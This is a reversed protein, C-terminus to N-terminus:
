RISLDAGTTVGRTCIHSAGQMRLPVVDKRGPYHFAGNLRIAQRNLYRINLTEGPYEGTVTLTSKDDRHMDMIVHPNVKFGDKDMHVSIKGSPDLIDMIVVVSGDSLRDLTIVPGATISHLIVHPFYHALAASDSYLFVVDDDPPLGCPNPPTPDRAPILVGNMQLLEIQYDLRHTAWICFSFLGALLLSVIWRWLFLAHWDRESASRRRNRGWHHPNRERLFDSTLWSGLSWLLAAVFCAYCAWVFPSRSLHLSEAALIAGLMTLGTGWFVAFLWNSRQWHFLRRVWPQDFIHISQVREWLVSDEHCIFSVVGM